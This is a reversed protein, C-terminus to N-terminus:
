HQHTEKAPKQDAGNLSPNSVIPMQVRTSGGNEFSLEIEIMDGIKLGQRVEKMMIHLGGPALPISTRAPIDIAPIDRMKMMGNDSKMHAHLELKHASSSSAAILRDPTDGTNTLTLYAATQNTGPPPIRVRPESIVINGATAAPKQVAPPLPAPGCAHLGGMVALAIFNCTRM